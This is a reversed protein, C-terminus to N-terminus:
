KRGLYYNNIIISQSVPKPSPANVLLIFAISALGVLLDLHDDLSKVAEEKITRGADKVLRRSLKEFM